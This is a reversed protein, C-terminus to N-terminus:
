TKPFRQKVALCDNIYTAKEANGETELDTDGSNIKVQVDNWDALPPYAWRRLDAYNAVRWESVTETMSREDLYSQIIANLSTDNDGNQISKAIDTILTSYHIM